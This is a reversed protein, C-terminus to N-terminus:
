IVHRKNVINVGTILSEDFPLQGVPLLPPDADATPDPGPDPDPDPDPGPAAAGERHHSLFPHSAAPTLGSRRGAGARKGGHQAPDPAPCPSKHPLVDGNAIAQALAATWAKDKVVCDAIYATKAEINVSFM